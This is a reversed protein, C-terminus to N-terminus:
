TRNQEPPLLPERRYDQVGLAETFRRVMEDETAEATGSLDAPVRGAAMYGHGGASGDSRVVSQVLEDLKTGQEPSRLSVIVEDRYHGVAVIIRVHELRRLFDAMEAAMDPYRMAGLRSVVLGDLTYTRHLAADLAGFYDRPVAASEISALAERDLHRQLYVYARTDEEDTERSLGLTDSKIGYFLATAVNPEIKLRSARLYNTVIASTSSGDPRVDAFRVHGTEPRLPHHDIVLRPWCYDDLPQNGAGPQTDLLAILDYRRCDALCFPVLKIGLEQVMARNEARGVFGRYAITIDAGLRRELLAGLGVAAGLADPDPDNHTVLLASKAGQATALLASLRQRTIKNAEANAM